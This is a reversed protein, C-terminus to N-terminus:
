SSLKVMRPKWKIWTMLKCSRKVRLRRRLLGHTQLCFSFLVCNDTLNFHIFLRVFLSVFWYIFIFMFAFLLYILFISVRFLGSGLYGFVCFGTFEKRDKIIPEISWDYLSFEPKWEDELDSSVLNISSSAFSSSSAHSSSSFSSTSFSSSSSSSSFSSSSADM